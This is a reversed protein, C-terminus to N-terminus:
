KNLRGSCYRYFFDSLDAYGINDYYPPDTSVVRIHSVSQVTADAQIVTGQPNAPISLLLRVAQDIGALYNGSSESLPNAEAFDWVMPLAQRGFTSTVKDLGSHWSCLSSWYNSGKDVGFALYVAVADAYATAGRGGADLGQGDDAMGAALADQRVRERAEGVLDSFTTLAVLQRPTFLDGYTDLGYNSVNVRCKGELTVDPKWNPQVERALNEMATTPPLYVRGRDGEAVIAMLRAGM